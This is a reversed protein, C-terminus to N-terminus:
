EGPHVPFGVFIRLWLLRDEHRTEFGPGGMHSAPNRRETLNLVSDSSLFWFRVGTQTLYEKFRSVFLTQVISV